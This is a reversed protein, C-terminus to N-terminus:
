PSTFPFCRKGNQVSECYLWGGPVSRESRVDQSLKHRIHNRDVAGLGKLWVPGGLAGQLDEFSLMWVLVRLHDWSQVAGKSEGIWHVDSGM